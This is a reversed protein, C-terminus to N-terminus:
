IIKGIIRKVKDKIENLLFLIGQTKLLFNATKILRIFENNTIKYVSSNPHRYKMKHIYNEIFKKSLDFDNLMEESIKTINLENALKLLKKMYDNSIKKKHFIAHYFLTYFYDEPSPVYFGKKHLVVRKLIDEYWRKDYYKDGPHKWDILAIKEGIRISGPLKEKPPTNGSTMCVYPVIISDNTLIDIDNHEDSSFKEPLDEFNRLISYKITGNLMKLFQPMDNWEGHGFLDLELKKISGDWHIPLENVIEFSTKGLLLTLDHNTEKESISGHISYKEGIWKRYKEKNKSMNENIKLKGYIGVDDIFNPNQDQIIILLFPGTGSLLAKKKVDPLSNGYFRILNNLFYEKSWKIEFIEKIVFRTKIDDIILDSKYRSKEWIIFLYLQENM